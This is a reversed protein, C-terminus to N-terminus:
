GLMVRPHTINNSQRPTSNRILDYCWEFWTTDM